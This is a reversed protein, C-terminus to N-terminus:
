AKITVPIGIYRARGPRDTGGTESGTSTAAGRDSTDSIHPEGGSESHGSEDRDASTPSRGHAGNSEAVCDHPMVPEVPVGALAERLVTVIATGHEALATVVEHREGRVLAAAACLPCWTCNSWEPKGDAAAHRLLPEVRELLVEALQKLEEAFETLGDGPGTTSKSM